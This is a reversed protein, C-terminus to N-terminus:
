LSFSQVAAAIVILMVGFFMLAIPMLLAGAAQEGKQLLRQRRQSWLEVSQNALFASLEGGGREISQILASSYKKIEQSNCRVGFEYFADIESVGNKMDDCSERMMDYLLGEKGYAVMEWGERLIVGSNVLLALKSIANPFESECEDRRANLKERTYTLFYYGAAAALLVGIGAFFAGDEGFLGAVAFMFALSLVVYTITQAWVARAYFEGYKKGYMLNTEERLRSGLKGRLRFLKSDQLSFGITYLGKMPFADDDLPELMHDYKQGTLLLIVALLSFVTGIVLIIISM